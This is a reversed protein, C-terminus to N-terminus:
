RTPSKSSEDSTTTRIGEAYYTRDASHEAALADAYSLSGPAQLTWNLVLLLLCMAVAVAAFGRGLHEFSFWFSQRREIRRWIGPLFDAGSEVDPCAERYAAFLPTLEDPGGTEEGRFEDPRDVRNSM